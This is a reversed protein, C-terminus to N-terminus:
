RGSLCLEKVPLYNLIDLILNDPLLDFNAMKILKGIFKWKQFSELDSSLALTEPLKDRNSITCPFFSRKNEM